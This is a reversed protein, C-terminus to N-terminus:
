TGSKTVSALIMPERAQLANGLGEMILRYITGVIALQLLSFLLFVPIGYGKGFARLLAEAGLPLLTAAQVLPFLFLVVVLQLLIGTLKPNAPKLSGPAIYVPAYISLLAALLYSLLFMSLYQPIMALCHDVRLPCVAQAVVILVVGAGLALPAFSLHKGLLIDRRRMASLIYVRFGDRDFGFQNGMVQMLGMLLMSLGGIVVLPRLTEPISDRGRSAIWGFFVTTILPGLMMMKGEPSRLVSLLNALAVASVPESAGPVRAELLRPRKAPVGATAAELDALKVESTGRNFAGQYLGVTTRYARRLSAAGIVTMGLLGLVSPLVNGQAATIVGYPLWGVPLVMNVLRATQEIRELGDQNAQRIGRQQEETAQRLRRIQEAPDLRNKEAENRLEELKKSFLAAGGGGRQHQRWPGVFNILQPLQALLVIALTTIMVVTRRRRPNSMLAALWGQFQYTVATVMLLFAALLPIVLLMSLGEVAVLALAYGLMVPGVIILSLRVLSSLYNILFVGSVSVPLHLFKSLSIPETRQLETALGVLWFILFAGILGDWVYMLQVPTAKPILYTGLMFSGVLLPIATALAGVTLITLLVVNLAGARRWQNFLLRWRLWVFARLHQWNV